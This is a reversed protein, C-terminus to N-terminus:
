SAVRANVPLLPQGLHISRRERYRAKLADALWELLRKLPLEWVWQTPRLGRARAVQGSLCVWVQRVLLALGVLLLRYAADNATTLGKGQNMQRYSTEIGFRRRYAMKAQRARRRQRAAEDAGWGGFAYVKTEKDGRRQLVIAQTEVPKRSEETVWAVTTITGVPLAFCANRRNHGKGKKRLPVTYSLGRDQLLLLTEGSDFASDLVVGRLKLGAAAIQELLAAVIQHPKIKTTLALLGVTYRRRKHILVASAYAFFYKTGQKKQGGVVGPTQKPNAGYYPAYHTDIAVDWLRRRDRRTLAAVDHLAEVLGKLLAAHGDTTTPLNAHLAQRATEHSFGLRFRRAVASLSSRLAAVLLLLGLLRAVSVLTGYPKWPLVQALAAQATSRVVAPTITCYDQRM